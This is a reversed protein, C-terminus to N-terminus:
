PQTNTVERPDDERALDVLTGCGECYLGPGAIHCDACHRIDVAEWVHACTM